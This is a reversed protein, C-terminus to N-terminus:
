KPWAYGSVIQRLVLVEAVTLPTWRPSWGQDYPLRAEAFVARVYEKPVAYSWGKGFVANFAAVESCGVTHALDDFNLQPNAAKQEAYRQKRYRGLDQLTFNQGDAACGLLEDVLKPDPNICDGVARDQRTLSVDHELAHARGLQDLNLVAVGKSDVQDPDRLGLKEGKSANPADSHVKFAMAALFTATDIGLGIHRLAAKVEDSTMDRGDRPILGHNALSNMIPCPGRLDTAQPPRYDGKKVDKDSATNAPSAM